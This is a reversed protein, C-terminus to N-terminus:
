LGNHQAAFADLAKALNTPDPSGPQGMMFVLLPLAPPNAVQAAPPLYLSADRAAYQGTPIKADGTLSSVSGKSPMGAPPQLNQYLTAPDGAPATPAPQPASAAPALQSGAEPEPGAATAGDAPAAPLEAAPAAASPLPVDASTTAPAPDPSPMAEDARLDASDRAARRTAPTQEHM